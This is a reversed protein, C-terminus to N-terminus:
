PNSSPTACAIQNSSQWNACSWVYIHKIYQQITSTVNTSGIYGVQSMLALLGPHSLTAGSPNGLLGTVNPCGQKYGDIYVCFWMATSGDTTVRMGYTHYQTVDFGPPPNPIAAGGGWIATAQSGCNHFAANTWGNTYEFSDFELSCGYPTAAWPALLFANAPASSWRM